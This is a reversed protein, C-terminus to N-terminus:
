SYQPIVIISSTYGPIALSISSWGRTDLFHPSERHGILCYRTIDLFQPTDFIIQSKGDIGLLVWSPLPIDVVMWIFRELRCM